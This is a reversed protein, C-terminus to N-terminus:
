RCNRRTTTSCLHIKKTPWAGTPAVTLIVKNEMIIGGERGEYCYVYYCTIFDKLKKTYKPCGGRESIGIIITFYM